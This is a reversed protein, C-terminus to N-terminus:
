RKSADEAFLDYTEFGYRAVATAWLRYTAADGHVPVGNDRLKKILTALSDNTDSLVQTIEQDPATTILTVLLGRAGRPDGVLPALLLAAAQYPGGDHDGLFTDLQTPHISLRVLRYLNALKKVMRLPCCRLSGPSSTRSPSGSV